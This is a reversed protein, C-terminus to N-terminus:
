RSQGYSERVTYAWAPDTFFYPSASWESRRGESNKQVSTLKPARRNHVHTLPITSSTRAAPNRSVGEDNRRVGARAAIRARNAQSAHM